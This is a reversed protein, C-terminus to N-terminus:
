CNKKKARLKKRRRMQLLERQKTTPTLFTGVTMIQGPAPQALGKGEAAHRGPRPWHRYFVPLFFNGSIYAANEGCFERRENRCPFPLEIELDLGPGASGVVFDTTDRVRQGGGCRFRGRALLFRLASLAERQGFYPEVAQDGPM